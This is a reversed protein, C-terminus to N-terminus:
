GQCTTKGGITSLKLNTVVFILFSTLTILVQEILNARGETTVDYCGDDVRVVTWLHSGYARANHLLSDILTLSFALNDIWIYRLIYWLNVIDYLNDVAM